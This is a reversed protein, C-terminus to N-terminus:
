ISNLPCSLPENFHKVPTFTENDGALGKPFLSSLSQSLIVTSGRAALSTSRGVFKIIMTVANESRRAFHRKRDRCSKNDSAARRGSSKKKKGNKALTLPERFNPNLFNRCSFFQRQERRALKTTRLGESL